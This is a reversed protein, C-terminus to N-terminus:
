RATVPPPAWDGTLIAAQPSYHRTVITQLSSNARVWCSRVRSMSHTWLGAAPKRPM